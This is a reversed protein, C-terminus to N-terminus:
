LRGLRCQQCLQLQWDICCQRCRVPVFMRISAGEFSGYHHLGVAMRMGMMGQAQPDGLDAARRFLELALQHNVEVGSGRQLVPFFPGHRCVRVCLCDSLLLEPFCPIETRCQQCHPTHAAAGMGQQCLHPLGQVAVLLQALWPAASHQASLRRLLRRVQYALALERLADARGTANFVLDPFGQVPLVQLKGAAEQQTGALRRASAAPLLGGAFKLLEIAQKIDRTSAGRRSRCSAPM